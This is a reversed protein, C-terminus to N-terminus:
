RQDSALQIDVRRNAARGQATDNSAIPERQGKGEAVLRTSAVGHSTLYRQTAQARAASLRENSRANGVSDSHGTIEATLDGHTQMEHSLAQLFVSFRPSLNAKATGFAADGTARLLLGGSPLTSVQVGNETAPGALASAVQALASPPTAHVAATAVPRTPLERYAPSQSALVPVPATAADVSTAPAESACGALLSIGSVAVLAALRAAMTFLTPLQQMM